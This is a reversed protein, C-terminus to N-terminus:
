RRRRQRRPTRPRGALGGGDMVLTRHGPASLGVTARWAVKGPSGCLDRELTAARRFPVRAHRPVAQRSPMPSGWVLCREQVHGGGSGHPPHSRRTGGAVPAAPDKGWHEAADRWVPTAVFVCFVKRTTKPALGSGCLGIFPQEAGTARGVAERERKAWGCWGQRRGSVASWVCMGRWPSDSGLLFVSIWDTSHLSATPGPVDRPRARKTEMDSWPRHLLTFRFIRGVAYKCPKRRNFLAPSMVSFVSYNVELELTRLILERPLELIGGRDAGGRHCALSGVSM